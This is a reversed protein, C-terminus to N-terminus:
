NATLPQPRYVRLASEIDSGEYFWLRGKIRVTEGPPCDAFVPDSHLCPCPPNGWARGCREWAMIIWREGNASKVVAYPARFQKNDNTQQNFGAVGKLMACNQVRLGTLPESTANHLWLEFEVWESKPIVRAGIKVKNPLLREIELVGNRKRKWEMPQLAIQKETWLTPVHTHALYLIGQKCFVAEPVDVVVYSSEDWPTFVSVKTERQPDIAGDLFGIRPHRGGPYPLVTLREGARRKRRNECLIRFRKLAGTIDDRPFGTAAAAEDPTFGHYVVMNELWFRLESESAPKRSTVRLSDDTSTTAMALLASVALSVVLIPM